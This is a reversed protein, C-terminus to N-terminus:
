PNAEYGLLEAWKRGHRTFKWQGNQRTFLSRTFSDQLSVEPKFWVLTAQDVAEDSPIFRLPLGVRTCEIKWSHLKSLDGPLSPTLFDFRKQMDCLGRAPIQITFLHKEREFIQRISPADGASSTKLLPAADVGIFNIGNYDGHYNPGDTNDPDGFAEYWEAYRRHYMFGLEFHLHAREQPISPGTHGLIGLTEGVKIEQGISVSASALHGYTTYADYNGFRHRIMVYIGYGSRNGAPNVYVVTGEAAARVADLPKGTADRKLPRIDLGEHFREFFRAPEPGNTRVFGYMGSFARKSSTPQYFQGLDQTLLRHNDTPFILTVGAPPPPASSSEGAQAPLQCIFASLWVILALPLYQM